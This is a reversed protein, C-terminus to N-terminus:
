FDSLLIPRVKIVDKVTSNGWTDRNMMHSQFESEDQINVM